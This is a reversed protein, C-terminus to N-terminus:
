RLIPPMATASVHGSPPDRSRQDETLNRAAHAARWPVLVHADVFVLASMCPDHGVTQILVPESFLAQHDEYRVVREATEVCWKWRGLLASPYALHGSLTLSLDAGLYGTSVAGVAAFLIWRLRTRDAM